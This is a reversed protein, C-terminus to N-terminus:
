VSTPWLLAMRQEVLRQAGAYDAKGSGLVPIVEVVMIAKPVWLEPVGEAKAYALLEPRAATEQDTVLVIREGKRGDDIAIAVHSHEPWLGSALAEIAGLSVMEGGLKAFRKARGKITVFRNEDVEVIDGTDHWGDEPPTLRGGDGPMMYGAMVNPGRVVLRGGEHIGKVPELRFELGPLLQGVSGYRNTEPLNLAIVPACETAGYGEVIETGYKAWLVRTEDKVREAGALIMKVSALDTPAAARAYGALFTDTGFLLDAQVEGVLKPIERYHLPSPYLVVRIGQILPLLLGGTMGVSHFVPLPNFFKGFQSLDIHAAVQAINALFNRHTLVVGKPEGESGSTFLIIAPDDPKAGSAAHVAGARLKDFVGRLRDLLGLSKRLDELYVVRVEAALAEVVPELSAKSIFARSTLVLKMNATRCASLINKQGASFNLMAATRGHWLLGFLTVATANVNPLLVGVADGKQTQKAFARGLVQAGLILRDYTLQTRTQDELIAVSKGHRAAAELLAQPLTKNSVRDFESTL